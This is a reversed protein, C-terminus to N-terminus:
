PVASGLLRVAKALEPIPVFAKAFGPTLWIELPFKDPVILEDASPNKQLLKGAGKLGVVVFSTSLGDATTADRCLITVGATGTVPYGTKPDIIHSYRQGAIEVLREYSGSTALAMGSELTVKGIIRSRDFPNRVGIEWKEGWQPRGCVRINGSLDILFDEINAGRCYDFARDVAYGKAIGGLDVAMGKVPLFATRDALILRRYDVLTVQQRITEDSPLGIPESTRGFGWLRVLPAVTIDFAGDSLEGFHQGLSLVRIADESVALPAVGAKEALLSVDSDPRYTSLERELQAFINHIQATVPEIRDAYAPGIAVTALGGMSRFTRSPLQTPLLFCAASSLVLFLCGPLLAWHSRHRPGKGDVGLWTTKDFGHILDRARGSGM